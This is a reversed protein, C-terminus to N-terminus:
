LNIKITDNTDIMKLINIDLIWMMHNFANGFTEELYVKLGITFFLCWRFSETGGILGQSLDKKEVRIPNM